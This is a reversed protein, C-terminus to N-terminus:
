SGAQFGPRPVPPHFVSSTDPLPLGSGVRNMRTHNLEDLRPAYRQIASTNMGGYISNASSVLQGYSSSYGPGPNSRYSQTWSHPPRGPLNVNSQINVDRGYKEEMEYSRYGHVDTTGRPYGMLPDPTRLGHEPNPTHSQRNTLSPFPEESQLHYKGVLDDDLNGGHRTENIPTRLGHEPNHTHSQRHTLSPFPVESQLRLIGLLDDDLNGGHRTQSYPCSASFSINESHQYDEMEIDMNSPRELSKSSHDVLLRGEDVNLYPHCSLSHKGTSKDKLSMAPRRKRKRKKKRKGRFEESNAESQNKQRGHNRDGETVCSDRPLEEKHSTTVRAEQEQNEQRNVLNQDDVPHVPYQDLNNRDGAADSVHIEPRSEQFLSLKKRDKSLHGHHQAIDKHKPTWDPHSWLYLPPANLNWDEM